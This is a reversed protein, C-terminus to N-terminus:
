KLYRRVAVESICDLGDKSVQSSKRPMKYTMKRIGEDLTSNLEDEKSLRRAVRKSQGYLQQLSLGTTRWEKQDYIYLIEKRQNCESSRLDIM